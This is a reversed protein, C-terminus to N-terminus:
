AGGMFRYGEGYVSFIYGAGSPDEGIKKRIKLIHNDVTRTSPFKEYGWIRDLLVDRSVVEGRHAVLYRLIEVELSTLDFELGDRRIKFHPFDIEVGDFRYVAPAGRGDRRDRRLQARIRALLERIGFPKSVYDDAGIELGVVKDVEERKATLMVIPVGVNHRRLERCVDLGDRKPLMIDLLVLDPTDQLAKTLGEDGDLAWSVEYGEAELNLKLGKVLEEEDEIILIKEKM